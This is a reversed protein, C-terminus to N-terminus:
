LYVDRPNNSNAMEAGVPVLACVALVGAAVAVVVLRGRSPYTNLVEEGPVAVRMVDYRPLKPEVLLSDIM